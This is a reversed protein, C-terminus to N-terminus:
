LRNCSRNCSIYIVNRDNRTVCTDDQVDNQIRKVFEDTKLKRKGGGGKENTYFRRGLCRLAHRSIIKLAV